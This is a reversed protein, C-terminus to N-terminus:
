SRRYTEDDGLEVPEAGDPVPEEDRSPLATVPPSIIEGLEDVAGGVRVHECGRRVRLRDDEDEDVM